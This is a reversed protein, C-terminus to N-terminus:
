GTGAAASQEMMRLPHFEPTPEENTLLRALPVAAFGIVFGFLLIASIARIPMKKDFGGLFGKSEEISSANQRGQESPDVVFKM